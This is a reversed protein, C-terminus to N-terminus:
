HKFYHDYQTRVSCTLKQNHVLGRILDVELKTHRFNELTLLSPHYLTILFLSSSLSPFAGM